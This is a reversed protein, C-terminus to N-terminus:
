QDPQDPEVFSMEHPLSPGHWRYRYETIGFTAPM